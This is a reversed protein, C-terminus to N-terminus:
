MSAVQKEAANTIFQGLKYVMKAPYRKGFATEMIKMQLNLGKLASILEDDTSRKLGDLIHAVDPQGNVELYVGDFGWLSYESDM